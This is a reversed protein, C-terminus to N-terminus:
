ENKNVMWENESLFEKVKEIFLANENIVDEFFKRRSINYQEKLFTKKYKDIQKELEDLSDIVIGINYKSIVKAQYTGKFGLLPNGYLVSNYLRNTLCTKTNINSGYLLVNVLDAEKYINGEEEKKYRGHIQVNKINNDKIHKKLRENITGEGHFILKFKDNNKVQNILDINVDWHRIVGITSINTVDKSKSMYYPALEDLSLVNTNHNILYKNSKPLWKQYGPSSIVCAYSHKILSSFDSFKYIKSYDRIDFIYKNPYKNILYRKLFHGAQLTFVIVKDFNGVELKNIVFRKYKLYDLYNRQHKAKQDKHTYGDIKESINLRNWNIIKFDVQLSQLVEIYTRVYPMYLLNSPCILVIKM